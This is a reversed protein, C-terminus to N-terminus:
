SVAARARLSGRSYDPDYWYVYLRSCWDVCPVRGDSSRSGACLTINEIDLHKGTRWFYWLELLLREALTMTTLKRNKIQNASLNKLEEDAEVCDRVRIIYSAKDAARENVPVAKDLDDGIYSYCPFHKKCEAWVRNATLGKAVPVIWSYGGPDQPVVLGSFDPTMDPVEQYFRPWDGLDPINDTAINGHALNVPSGSAKALRTEEERCLWHICDEDNMLLTGIEDKERCARVEEPTYDPYPM